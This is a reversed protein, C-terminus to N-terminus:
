YERLIVDCSLRLTQVMKRFWARTSAMSRLGVILKRQVKYRSWQTSHKAQSAVAGESGLQEEVLDWVTNPEFGFVALDEDAVKALWQKLAQYKEPEGALEAAWRSAGSDTPRTEKGVKLPDGLGGSASVKEGYNVVADEFELELFECVKRGYLEPDAVLDEYRIHLTNLDEDRLMQAIAPIYREFIPDHEYALEFNGDFFSNAFSSFIAAPHRTLVIYKADPYVNKLFPWVTAYEPTKDIFVSEPRGAMYSNYLSEAYARCARWYDSEGGPLQAVFDKQGIGAVIHDFPAKDVNRWVGLHALPTILHPEPGGRVESHASLMRELMTTGSRPAGIIFAPQYGKAM